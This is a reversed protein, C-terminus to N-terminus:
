PRQCDRVDAGGTMDSYSQMIRTCDRDDSIHRSLVAALALEREIERLILV